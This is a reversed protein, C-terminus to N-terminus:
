NQCYSHHSNRRQSLVISTPSAEEDTGIHITTEKRIHTILNTWVNLYRYAWTSQEEKVGSAIINRNIKCPCYM